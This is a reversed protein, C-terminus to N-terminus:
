HIIEVFDPVVLTSPFIRKMVESLPAAEDRTRFAGIRVRYYPQRYLSIVESSSLLGLEALEEETKSNLWRRLSEEANIAEIRDVSSFVQVRFGEVEEVVGDDASSTMLIEPVDHVIDKDTVVPPDPFNAPNIQEVESWNSPGVVVVQPTTNVVPQSSSCGVLLLLLFLSRYMKRM